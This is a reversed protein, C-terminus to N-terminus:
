EEHTRAHHFLLFNFVCSKIRLFFSLVVIFHHFSANIVHVYRLVFSLKDMRYFYVFNNDYLEQLVVQGLKEVALTM